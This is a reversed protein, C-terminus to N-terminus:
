FEITNISDFEDKTSPTSRSRDQSTTKIRSTVPWSNSRIPKKWYGVKVGKKRLIFVVLAVIPVLGWLAHLSHNHSGTTQNPQNTQNTQNGHVSARLFTPTPAVPAVPAVPFSSPSLLPSPANQSPAHQPSPANQSPAHQSPAHQPSPANQPSPTSINTANTTRNFLQPVNVTENLVIGCKKPQFDSNCLWLSINAALYLRRCM